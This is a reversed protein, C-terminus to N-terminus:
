ELTREQVGIGRMTWSQGDLVLAAEVRFMEFGAEGADARAQARGHASDEIASEVDLAHLPQARPEADVEVEVVALDVEFSRMTGNPKRKM